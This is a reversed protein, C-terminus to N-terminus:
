GLLLSTMARTSGRHPESLRLTGLVNVGGVCGGTISVRRKFTYVPESETEAFLAFEVETVGWAFVGGELKFRAIKSDMFRPLEKDPILVPSRTTCNTLGIDAGTCRLYYLQKSDSYDFALCFEGVSAIKFGASQAQFGFRAM